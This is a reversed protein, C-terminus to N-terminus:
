LKSTELKKLRDFAILVMAQLGTAMEQDRANALREKLVEVIEARSRGNVFVIFKFGFRDEYQRNLEALTALTEALNEEQKGAGQEAKSLASLNQAPAGIRPHANIVQLKDADNMDKILGQAKDILDAYSLFPRSAYLGKALPPAMEFLLDVSKKFESEPASNLQDIPSLSANRIMLWGESPVFPTSLFILVTYMFIGKEYSVNQYRPLNILDTMQTRIMTARKRTFTDFGFRGHYNGVGSEGVGGFPLDDLILSVIGDNALANGGNVKEFVKEIVKSDRSYPYFALPSQRTNVIKIAEDVSDVEIIPLIPGFIEDSMTPHVTGDIGVGSIVTPAMFRQSADTQGGFELKAGPVQLQKQLIGELRSFHRDSAIRGYGKSSVPNASILEETALRMEKVLDKAVSKHVLVYDPAVCTQGCNLIKSWMIRKATVPLNVTDDVIVPSKGGLELVTPTLTKAAAHQIIKGV